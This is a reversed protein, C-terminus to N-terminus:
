TAASKFAGTPNTSVYSTRLRPSTPIASAESYEVAVSTLSQSLSELVFNVCGCRCNSHGLFMRADDIAVVTNGSNARSLVTHLESIVPSDIDVRSTEFKSGSFHGDLWFSCLFNLNSLATPPRSCSPYIFLSVSFTCKIAVRQDDSSAYSQVCQYSNCVDNLMMKITV